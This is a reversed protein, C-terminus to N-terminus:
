GSLKLKHVATEISSQLNFIINYNAHTKVFSKQGVYASLIVSEYCVNKAYPLRFRSIHWWYSSVLSFYFDLNNEISHHYEVKRLGHSSANEENLAWTFRPNAVSCLTVLIPFWDAAAAPTFKCLQHVFIKFSIPSSDRWAIVRSFTPPHNVCERM